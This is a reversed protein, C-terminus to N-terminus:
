KGSAGAKSQWWRGGSRFRRLTEELDEPSLVSSVVNGHADVRVVYSSASQRSIAGMLGTRDREWLGEHYYMAPKALVRDSLGDPAFPPEFIFPSAYKWLEIGEADIPVDLLIKTQEPAELSLRIVESRISSGLATVRRWRLNELLLLSGMVGLGILAAAWATKRSLLRGLLLPAAICLGVSPLYLYRSNAPAFVLPAISIAYWFLGFYVCCMRIEAMAARHRLRWLAAGATSLLAIALLLIWMEGVRTEFVNLPLLLLGILRVQGIFFDTIMQGDFAGGPNTWNSVPTGFANWRIALYLLLIGFYAAHVRYRGWRVREDKQRVVLFDYGLILFPVTVAIEKALFSLVAFGLSGILLRNKGNSRYLGFCYVSLLMLCSPILDTRGAIWSVAEIHTAHVAFLVGAVTSGALGAPTLRFAIWLVLMSGLVHLLVNTLHYGVPNGLWLRSEIFWDLAELPRMSPADFGWMGQSYDDFVTTLWNGFTDNWHLQITGFDEANFYSTLTPVYALFAIGAVLVSALIIPKDTNKV